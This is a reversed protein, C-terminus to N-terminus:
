KTPVGRKLLKAAHRILEKVGLAAPASIRHVPLRVTEELSLSLAMASDHNEPLDMKTIAVIMPKKILDPAFSELERMIMTFREMPGPEIDPSPDILHILVKTREIHKLFRDGMGAGRHAGEILGPIDAMVFDTGTGVRVVGLAPVKTTFPYDA